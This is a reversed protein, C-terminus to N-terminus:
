HDSALVRDSPNTSILGGMDPNLSSYGGGQPPFYLQRPNQSAIIYGQYARNGRIHMPWDGAVWTEIRRVVDEHLVIAALYSAHVITPVLNM